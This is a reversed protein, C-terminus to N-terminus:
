SKGFNAYNVFKRITRGDLYSVVLADLMMRMDHHAIVPIVKAWIGAHAWRIFRMYNARRSGFDKPLSNWGAGTDAVWLTAELYRRTKESSTAHARLKGPLVQVIRGWEDSDLRTRRIWRKRYEVSNEARFEGLRKEGSLRFDM